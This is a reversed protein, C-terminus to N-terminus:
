DPVGVERFISLCPGVVEGLGAGKRVFALAAFALVEEHLHSTGMQRQLVSDRGPHALLRMVVALLNGLAVKLAIAM